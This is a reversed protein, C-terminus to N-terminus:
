RRLLRHTISVPRRRPRRPRTVRAVGRNLWGAPPPPAPAMLRCPNDPPGVLREKVGERYRIKILRRTGRCCIKGKAPHSAASTKNSPM